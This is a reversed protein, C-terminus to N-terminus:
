ETPDQGSFLGEELFGLWRLIEHDLPNPPFYIQGGGWELIRFSMGRDGTLAPIFFRLCVIRSASHLIDDFNPTGELNEGTLEFKRFKREPTQVGRLIVQTIHGSKRLVLNKLRVFHIPSLRLPAVLLPNGYIAYSLSAAAIRLANRPADFGIAFMGEKMQWLDFALEAFLAKGRSSAGKPVRYGCSFRFLRHSRLDRVLVLRGNRVSEFEKAMRSTGPLRSVELSSCERKIEVEDRKPLVYIVYDKM